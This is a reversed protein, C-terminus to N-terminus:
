SLSITQSTDLTADDNLGVKQVRPVFLKVLSMNKKAKLKGFYGTIERIHVTHLAMGEHEKRLFFTSIIKYKINLLQM